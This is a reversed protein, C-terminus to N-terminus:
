DWGYQSVHQHSKKKMFNADDQLIKESEIQSERAVEDQSKDCWTLFESWHEAVYKVWYEAPQGAVKHVVEGVPKDKTQGRLYSVCQQFNGRMVDVHVRGWDRTEGEPRPAVMRKSLRELEKLVSKFRRQNRYQIFLHVHYGVGQPNPEVSWVHEKSEEVYKSVIDHAKKDDVNHIVISYQRHKM